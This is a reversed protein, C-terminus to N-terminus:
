GPAEVVRGCRACTGEDDTSAFRLPRDCQCAPPTLREGREVAARREATIAARQAEVEALHNELDLDSADDPAQGDLHFTSGAQHRTRAVAGITGLVKQVTRPSLGCTDALEAVTRDPRRALEARVQDAATPAPGSGGNTHPAFRFELQGSIVPRGGLLAPVPQRDPGGPPYLCLTLWRGPSPDARSDGGDEPALRGV